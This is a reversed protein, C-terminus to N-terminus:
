SGSADHPSDERLWRHLISRATRWDREVTREGVGLVEATERATLDGFFRLEVVKALRENLGSLRELAQDLELVEQVDPQQQLHHEEIAVQEAGAGRKQALKQRASDVLIFRMARAAVAIFHARDQWPGAAPGAIRLYAENVIATTGLTANPRHRLQHHAVRRLDEYLVEFLRDQDGANGDRIGALLRRIEETAAM